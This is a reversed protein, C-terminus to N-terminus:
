NECTPQLQTWTPDLNPGLQTWTQTWTPDLNPWTPVLIPGFSVMFLNYVSKRTGRLTRLGGVYSSYAVLLLLSAVLFCCPLLSPAVLITRTHIRLLNQYIKPVTEISLTVEVDSQNHRGRKKSICIERIYKSKRVDVLREISM